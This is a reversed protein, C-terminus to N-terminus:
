QFQGSYIQAADWEIDLSHRYSLSRASFYPSVIKRRHAMGVKRRHLQQLKVESKVGLWFDSNIVTATLAVRWKQTGLWSDPNVLTIIQAIGYELNLSHGSARFKVITRAPILALHREKTFWMVFWNMLQWLQSNYSNSSSWKKVLFNDSSVVTAIQAVGWEIDLWSDSNALTTKPAVNSKKVDLWSDSSLLEM